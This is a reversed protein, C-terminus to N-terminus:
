ASDRPGAIDFLRGNMPLDYHTIRTPELATNPTRTMGSERYLASGFSKQGDGTGPEVVEVDEGCHTPPDGDSNLTRDMLARHKASQRFEELATHEALGILSPSAALLDPANGDAHVLMWTKAGM